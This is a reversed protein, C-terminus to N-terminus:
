DMWFLLEGWATLLDSTCLLERKAAGDTGGSGSAGPCHCTKKRVTVPM